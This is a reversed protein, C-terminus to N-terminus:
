FTNASFNEPLWTSTLNESSPFSFFCDFNLFISCQLLYYLFFYWSIILPFSWSDVWFHQCNSLFQSMLLNEIHAVFNGHIHTRVWFLFWRWYSLLIWYKSTVNRRHFLLRYSNYCIVDALPPKQQSHWYHLTTSFLVLWWLSSCLVLDFLLVTTLSSTTLFQSLRLAM